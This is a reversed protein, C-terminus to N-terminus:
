QHVEDTGGPHGGFGPMGAVDKSRQIAETWLVSGTYHGPIEEAARRGAVTCPLEGMTGLRVCPCRHMHRRKTRWGLCRLACMQRCGTRRFM